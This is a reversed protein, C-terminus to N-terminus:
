EPVAAQNLDAPDPSDSAAPNSSQLQTTSPVGVGTGAPGVNIVGRMWAHLSCHFPFSGQILKDVGRVPGSQGGALLDSQFLGSESVIDHRALQDLNTLTLTDGQGVNVVPTAYNMAASFAHQEAAQAPAAALGAM